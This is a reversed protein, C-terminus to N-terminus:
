RAWWWWWWWPTETDSDRRVTAVILLGSWFGVAMKDQLEDLPKPAGAQGYKPYEYFLGSNGPSEIDLRTVVGLDAQPILVVPLM